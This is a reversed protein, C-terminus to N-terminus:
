CGHLGPLFLGAGLLLFPIVPSGEYASRRVPSIQSACAFTRSEGRSATTSTSGRSGARSPRRGTLARVLIADTGGGDCDAGERCRGRCDDTMTVAFLLLVSKM